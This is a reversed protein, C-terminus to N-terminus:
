YIHHCFLMDTCFVTFKHKTFSGELQGADALWPCDIHKCVHIRALGALIPCLFHITRMNKMRQSPISLDLSSRSTQFTMAITIIGWAVCCVMAKRPYYLNFLIHPVVQHIVIGPQWHILWLQHVLPSFLRHAGVRNWHIPGDHFRCLFM